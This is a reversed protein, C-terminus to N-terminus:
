YNYGGQQPQQPQQEQQGNKAMMHGATFAALRGSGAARAVVPALLRAAGLIAGIM